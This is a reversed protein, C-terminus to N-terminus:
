TRPEFGLRPPQRIENVDQLVGLSPEVDPLGLIEILSQDIMRCGFRAPRLESGLVAGPPKNPRLRVDFAGLGDTPLPEDLRALGCPPNAIMQEITSRTGIDM